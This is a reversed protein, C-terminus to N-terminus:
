KKSRKRSPDLRPAGYRNKWPRGPRWFVAHWYQAGAIMGIFAAVMGCEEIFKLTQLTEASKCWVGAGNDLKVLFLGLMWLAFAAVAKKDSIELDHLRRIFVTFLPVFLAVNTLRLTLYLWFYLTGNEGDAATGLIGVVTVLLILFFFFLQGVIVGWFEKATARGETKGWRSPNLYYSFAGAFGPGVNPEADFEENFEEDFDWVVDRAAENLRENSM